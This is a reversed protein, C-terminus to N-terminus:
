ELEKAMSNIASSAHKLATNYAHDSESGTDEVRENECLNIADLLAERKAQKLMKDLATSDSTMALASEIPWIMHEPFHVTANALVDNLADRMVVERAQCEALQQEDEIRKQACRAFMEALETVRVQCEALQQRLLKIEEAAKNAIRIGVLELREVIDTM